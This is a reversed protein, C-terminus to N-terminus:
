ITMGPCNWLCYFIVVENELGVVEYSKGKYSNGKTNIKM